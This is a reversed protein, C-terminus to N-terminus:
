TRIPQNNFGRLYLREGPRAQTFPYKQADCDALYGMYAILSEYSVLVGVGPYIM